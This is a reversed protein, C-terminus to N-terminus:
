LGGFVAFGKEQADVGLEPGLEFGPRGVFQAAYVALHFKQQAIGHAAAPFRGAVVRRIGGGAFASRLLSERLLDRPIQGFWM